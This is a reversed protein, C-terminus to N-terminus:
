FPSPATAFRWNRSVGIRVLQGQIISGPRTPISGYDIPVFDVAQATEEVWM